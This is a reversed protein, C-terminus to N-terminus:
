KPAGVVVAAAVAVAAVQKGSMLVMVLGGGEKAATMRPACVVRNAEEVGLLLTRRTM